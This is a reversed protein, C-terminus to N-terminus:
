QLTPTTALSAARLSRWLEIATPRQQPQLALAGALGRVFAEPHTECKRKLEGSMTHDVNAELREGTALELLVLAALYIETACSESGLTRDLREPVPMWRAQKMLPSSTGQLTRCFTFDALCLAAASGRASYLCNQPNVDGHLYGRSHIVHLAQMLSAAVGRLISGRSEQTKLKIRGVSIGAYRTLIYRKADLEFGGVLQVINPHRFRQLQELENKWLEVASGETYVKAALRTGWEDQAVYVTSYRGVGIQHGLRVGVGRVSLSRHPALKSKDEARVQQSQFSNLM